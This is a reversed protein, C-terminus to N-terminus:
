GPYVPFFGKLPTPNASGYEISSWAGSLAADSSMGGKATGVILPHGQVATVSTTGVPAPISTSNGGSVPYETLVPAKQDGLLAIVNDTGFWTVGSFMVTGPAAVYFPSLDIRVLKQTVRTAAQQAIAGFYLVTEGVVIAVRVGDPAVRIADFPGVSSPGTSNANEVAVPIPDGGPQGPGVNGQLTVIQTGTTAWLDGNPGWSISTYGAGQPAGARKVLKGSGIVETFLTGDGRLAALYPFQPNPSIAIQWSGKGLRAIPVSPKAQIDSQMLVNGASDVYYFVGSRPNAPPSYAAPLHQVPNEQSGPPSWPKGNVLLEVSQVAPGGQGSGILTWLLQSSFPVLTADSNSAKSIALNVTATQASLTVGGIADAGLLATRTGGSLWDGPPKTLDQVLTGMLDTPTAQLPVYVPDPVLYRFTPDFFYLNRQQYDNVFMDSTLLLESPAQSIRWVKGVKILTFSYPGLQPGSGSPVAYKGAQTVSAQVKGGVTVVVSAPKGPGKAPVQTTSKIVPGLGNKFVTASFNPAWKVGPALYERAIKQGNGVSASAALFGYVLQAPNWKPDPPQPIIQPFPQSQGGPNQTVSYSQM